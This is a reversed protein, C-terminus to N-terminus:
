RRGGALRAQSRSRQLRLHLHMSGGTLVYPTDRPASIGRIRTITHWQRRLHCHLRLAPERPRLGEAQSKPSSLRAARSSPGDFVGAKKHRSRHAPKNDPGPPCFTAVSGNKGHPSAHGPGNAPQPVSVYPPNLGGEQRQMLASAQQRPRPSLVSSREWEKRSSILAGAREPAPPRFQPTGRRGPEQVHARSM